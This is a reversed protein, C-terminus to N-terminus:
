RQRKGLFAVVAAPMWIWGFESLLVVMGRASFFGVGIPSVEIPRWPFFYRTRVFPAFFAIGGGGNTLADLVGHSATVVAFYVALTGYGLAAEDDASRTAVLRAVVVGLLIAFFFSHTLGRHGLLDGYPVGFAFSVVDVDPLMSCVATWLWFRAPLRRRPYWRGLATAAVAHSFISPV